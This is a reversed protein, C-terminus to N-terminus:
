AFGLGCEPCETLKTSFDTGCAPCTAETLSPDYVKNVQEFDVGMEALMAMHEDRILRQIEPVDEAHAWIEKSPSCGSKCTSHNFMTAITIGQSALKAELVEADRVGVVGLLVKDQPEM